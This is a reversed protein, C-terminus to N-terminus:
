GASPTGVRAQCVHSLLDTGIRAWGGVFRRLANKEGKRGTGAAPSLPLGRRWTRPLRAPSEPGGTPVMAARRRSAEAQLYQQPARMTKHLVASALDMTKSGM